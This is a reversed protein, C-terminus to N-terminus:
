SRTSCSAASRITKSASCACRGRAFQRRGRWRRGSAATAADKAPAMVVNFTFTTGGGRRQTVAIDGGMARALQKVSSLGLGAGGFRSAISVNAQSFPRFLRKIEKLTLGIGSDSVAFAIGVKGKSSRLRRSRLARRQGTRHIERCQRDPEGARRAAPRSRRDCVGAAKRFYRGVIAPGQGGGPRGAFRRRQPGAHAPRLLGATGRARSRRQARCRRVPDCPEGSTGRGGQHHRGLATRARRSGSTALLNSIALIGTLPTRVEHAFAALATEVMGSGAPPAVQPRRASTAAASSARKKARRKKAPRTKRRSRASRRWPGGLRQRLWCPLGAGSDRLRKGAVGCLNRSRRALRCAAFIPRRPARGRAIRALGTAQTSKSLKQGSTMTPDAPSAPLGTASVGLLHQLLRHVSTSWFLDQGRVVDTVGQLADDIVVSLHYSTPTEKRALIVDGWAEPRATVVGTEGAPGEGQEHWALESARAHAAAM